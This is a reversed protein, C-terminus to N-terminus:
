ADRRRLLLGGGLLAAGAWAALVGLGPWPGIPLSPIGVTAQISLGASAPSVQLLFRQWDPDNTMLTVVQPLYLLGLVIGVAAVGERVAVGVGLSLAAVLALYLVSGAAARLTPGDALSLASYGHAATFGNGPLILRGALVSALVAVTGAALTLGIVVAAKAALFVLRRPMAALSTRIMGTGYEGTIAPVALLAVVAQGVQVGALSLKAADSGCGAWPCTVAASAAVGTMVTVVVLAPAWWGLGPLGRLKTWEAHLERRM